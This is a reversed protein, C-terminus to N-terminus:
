TGAVMHCGVTMQLEQKLSDWVGESRRLFWVYIRYVYISEYVCM